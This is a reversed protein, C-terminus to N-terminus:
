LNDYLAKGERLFEPSFILNQIGYQKSIRETYGVPVTSKIVITAMPEIEIAKQIVDEVSSTDFYNRDEDYNTPTAVVIFEAGKFAERVDLTAKLNLNKETLYKEIEEDVIPSKRNNLMKVKKEIVDLAAVENNQALLIANSIGVYGMGAVAIKM